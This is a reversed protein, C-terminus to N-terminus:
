TSALLYRMELQNLELVKFGLGLFFGPTLNEPVVQIIRCEKGEFKKTLGELLRRGYGQRRFERRVVLAWLFFSSGAESVLAFSKDELQFAQASQGSFNEPMLQWPLDREGEIAAVRSFELADIETLDELQGTIAPRQYGVLRRLIEFGLSQYLGLARPNQEFVELKMSADRRDRAAGLAESLMLRGLGQGRAATIVGMAAVRSTKGRRAILVIGQPIDNKAYVYSVRADIHEARFRQAVSEGTFQVPMLYGEFCSNLISAIDFPNYFILSHVTTETM